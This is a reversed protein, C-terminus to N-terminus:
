RGAGPHDPRRRSRSRRPRARSRPSARRAAWRARWRRCRRGRCRRARRGGGPGPWRSVCTGGVVLRRAGHSIGPARERAQYPPVAASVARSLRRCRRRRQLASPAFGGRFREPALVAHTLCSQLVVGDDGVSPSAVQVPSDGWSGRHGVMGAQGVEVGGLREDVPVDARAGLLPRRHQGREPEVGEVRQHVRRDGSADAGGVLESERDRGGLLLGSPLEALDGAAVGGALRHDPEAVVARDGRGDYPAVHELVRAPVGGVRGVLRLDRLAPELRQQVELGQDTVQGTQGGRVRRQEVLAGGGGLRHGQDTPAVLLRGAREHQVGVRERLGDRDHLGPGARHADLDDDRVQGVAQGGQVPHVRAAYQHLVGARVAADEVRSWDDLGHM